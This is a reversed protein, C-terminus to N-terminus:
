LGGITEGSPENCKGGRSLLDESSNIMLVGQPLSEPTGAHSVVDGPPFQKTVQRCGHVLTLRVRQQLPSAM